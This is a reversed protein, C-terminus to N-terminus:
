NHAWMFFLFFALLWRPVPMALTMHALSPEACRVAWHWRLNADTAPHGNSSGHPSVRCTATRWNIVHHSTDTKIINRCKHTGLLRRSTMVVVSQSAGMMHSPVKSLFTRSVYKLFCFMVTPKATNATPLYISHLAEGKIKPFETWCGNINQAWLTDHGRKHGSSRLM